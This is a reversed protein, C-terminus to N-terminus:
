NTSAAFLSESELPVLGALAALRGRNRLIYGVFRDLERSRMRSPPTVLYLPTSLPYAGARVRELSADVTDGRDDEIPVARIQKGAADRAVLPIWGVAAPSAAIREVAAEVSPMSVADPPLRQRPILMDLMRCSAESCSPGVVTIEDGPWERRLDSWRLGSGNSWLIREVEAIQLSSVWDNAVPVVIAVADFGVLHPEPTVPDICEASGNFSSPDDTAVFHLSGDCLREAVQDGSSDDSEIDLVVADAGLDAAALVAVNAAFRDGSARYTEPRNSCGIAVLAVTVFVFCPAPRRM